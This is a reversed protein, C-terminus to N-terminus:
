EVLTFVEHRLFVPRSHTMLLKGGSLRIRLPPDNYNAIPSSWLWLGNGEYRWKEPGFSGVSAKDHLIDHLRMLCSGDAKILLSTRIKEHGPGTSAHDNRSHWMGVIADESPNTEAKAELAKFEPDDLPSTSITCQTLGFSILLSLFSLVPQKMFTIM